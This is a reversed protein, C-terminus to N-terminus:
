RSPDSWGSPTWLHKLARAAARWIVAAARLPSGGLYPEDDWDVFVTDAGWSEHCLIETVPVTPEDRTVIGLGTLTPM